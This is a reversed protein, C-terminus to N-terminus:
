GPNASRGSESHQLLAALYLAVGAAMLPCAVILFAIFSLPHIRLLCLLTVAIGAIVLIAAWRLRREM